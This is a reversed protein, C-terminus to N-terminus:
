FILLNLEVFESFSILFLFNAAFLVLSVRVQDYKQQREKLKDSM